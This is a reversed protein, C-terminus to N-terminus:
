VTILREDAAVEEWDEGVSAYMRWRVGAGAAAFDPVVVAYFGPRQSFPRARDAVSLFATGPHTHLDAFVLLGERRLHEAVSVREAHPVVLMEHTAECVPVILDTIAATHVGTARGAWLVLAERCGASGDRLEVQTAHLGGAPLHLEVPPGPRPSEVAPRDALPLVRM